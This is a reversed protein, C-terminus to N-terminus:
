AVKKEHVPLIFNDDDAFFEELDEQAANHLQPFGCAAMLTTRVLYAGHQDGPSISPWALTSPKLQTGPANPRCTECIFKVKTAHKVTVKVGQKMHAKDVHEVAMMTAPHAACNQCPIKLKLNSLRKTLAMFRKLADSSMRSRLNDQALLFNHYCPESLLAAEISLNEHQGNIIHM